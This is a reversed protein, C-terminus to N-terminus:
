SIVPGGGRRRGLKRKVGHAWYQAM